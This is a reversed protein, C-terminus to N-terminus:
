RHRKYDSLRNKAIMDALENLEIGTHAAVKKIVIDLDSAKMIKLFRQRLGSFLKAGPPLRKDGLVKKAFLSDTYFVIRQGTQKALFQFMELAAIIAIIEAAKIDFNLIIGSVAFANDGSEPSIRIKYKEVISSPFNFTHTINQAAIGFASKDYDAHVSADTFIILPQQQTIADPIVSDDRLMIYASSSDFLKNALDSISNESETAQLQSHINEVHSKYSDVLELQSFEDDLKLLKKAKIDDM